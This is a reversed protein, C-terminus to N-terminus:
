RLTNLYSGARCRAGAQACAARPRDDIRLGLFRDGLGAITISARSAFRRALSPVGLDRDDREDRILDVEQRRIGFVLVDNGLRIRRQCCGVFEDALADRASIM